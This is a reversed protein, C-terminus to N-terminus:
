ERLWKNLDPNLLEKVAADSLNEKTVMTVGTDVQKEFPQKNLIAVATRVGEYGMRFPDQVALGHIEGKEIAELLATNSDFGVFKVKGAKGTTQLARLMGQTTIESPTFVGDVQKHTHLLHQAAQFAEEVTVGAYHNASVLHIDPGYEQLGKLFGNERATTSASEAKYRLLVVKGRGNLQECLRKASLKGALANNTAIYSSVDTSQLESDVIIVPIKRKGAAIVPPVLARKDLPALVLADVGQNVLNEVIEIQMNRGDEKPPGQWIIEVGLEQGAKEAGAHLSRWYSHNTGKPIVAIKLTSGSTGFMTKSTDEQRTKNLSSCGALVYLLNAATLFALIKYKLNLM